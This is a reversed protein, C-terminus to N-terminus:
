CLRSTHYPAFIAWVHTGRRCAHSGRKQSSIPLSLFKTTLWRPCTSRTRDGLLFSARRLFVPYARRSLEFCQQQNWSQAQPRVTSMRRRRCSAREILANLSNSSCWMLSALGRLRARRFPSSVFTKIAHPLRKPNKRPCPLSNTVKPGCRM